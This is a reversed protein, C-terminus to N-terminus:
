PWIFATPGPMIKIQPHGLGAILRNLVVLFCWAIDMKLRLAIRRARHMHVYVHFIHIGCKFAFNRPPTPPVVQVWNFQMLTHHSHTSVALCICLIVYQVYVLISVSASCQMSSALTSLYLIYGELAQLASRFNYLQVVVRLPMAMHSHM